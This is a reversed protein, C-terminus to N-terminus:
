GDGDGLTESEIFALADRRAKEKDVVVGAWRDDPNFKPKPGAVLARADLSPACDSPVNSYRVNSAHESCQESCQESCHESRHENSETRRKRRAEGSRRGAESKGRGIEVSERVQDRVVMWAFALVPDDSIRVEEDDFAYACIAMVFRGRQEDTPLTALADYFGRWFYFREQAM